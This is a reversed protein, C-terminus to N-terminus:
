TSADQNSLCSTSIILLFSLLRLAIAKCSCCDESSEYEAANEAYSRQLTYTHLNRRRGDANCAHMCPNMCQIILSKSAPVVATAGAVRDFRFV